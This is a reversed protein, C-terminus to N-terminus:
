DIDVVTLGTIGIQLGVLVMLMLILVRIFESAM